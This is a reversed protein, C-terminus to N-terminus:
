SLVSLVHTFEGTDCVPHVPVTFVWTLMEAGHSKEEEKRSLWYLEEM